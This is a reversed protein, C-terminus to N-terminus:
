LLFITHLCRLALAFWFILAGVYLRFLADATDDVLVKSSLRSKSLSLHVLVQTLARKPLPAVTRPISLYRNDKAWQRVTPISIDNNAIWVYRVFWM